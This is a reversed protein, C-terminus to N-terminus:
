RRETSLKVPALQPSAAHGGKRDADGQRKSHPNSGSPRPLLESANKPGASSVIQEQEVRIKM